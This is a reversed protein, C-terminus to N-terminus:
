GMSIYETALSIKIEGAKFVRTKEFYVIPVSYGEKKLSSLLSFLEGFYL